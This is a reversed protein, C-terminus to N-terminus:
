FKLETRLAVFADCVDKLSSDTHVANILSLREIRENELAEKEAEIAALATAHDALMQADISLSDGNRVLGGVAALFEAGLPGDTNENWIERSPDNCKGGVGVEDCVQIDESNLYVLKM